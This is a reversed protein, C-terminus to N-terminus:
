NVFFIPSIEQPKGWLMKGRKVGIAALENMIENALQEEKVAIVIKSYSLAQIGDPGIINEGFKQNKDAWAVINCYHNESIQYYYAQGVKGAGYLIIDTEKELLSYPFIFITDVYLNFIQKLGPNIFTWIYKKLQALLNYQADFQLLERKMYQYFSFVRGITSINMSRCMSENHIRYYYKYEKLILISNIHLCCPYFVAADDGMSINSDVNGYAKMLHERKIVKSCLSPHIGRKQAKADYMMNSLLSDLNKGREYLGALTGDEEKQVRGERVAMYGMSIIDYKKEEAIAMFTEYMDSSIWDDSDMFGIYEGSSQKLGQLRACTSGTNEQHIVRIRADKSQYEDCLQGSSDTSGDDVLIIEIEKYTQNILSELCQKLYKKTNYVPVIVSLKVRNDCKDKM